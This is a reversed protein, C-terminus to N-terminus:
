HMLSVGVLAVIILALLFIPLMILLSAVIYHGMVAFARSLFSGSLLSTKPLAPLADQRESVDRLNHELEDVRTQLAAIQSQFENVDM